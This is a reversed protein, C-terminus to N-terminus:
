GGAVLPFIAVLDTDVLPAELLGLHAINRGNVLVIADPGLTLGDPSLLKESMKQGYRSALLRLLEGMTGPAPLEEERCGTIDRYYAFYKIRM